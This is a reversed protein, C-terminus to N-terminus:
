QCLAATIYNDTRCDDPKRTRGPILVKASCKEASDMTLSKGEKFGKAQCMKDSASKCDPAGNPSVPCITRGTVMLPKALRSLTDSADRTTDKARENLDDITESPSKLAPLKGFMKGIEHILGSNEHPPPPPEPERQVAAPQDPAAQQIPAQTERSPPPPATQSWAAGAAITLVLMAAAVPAIRVRFPKSFRSTRDLM